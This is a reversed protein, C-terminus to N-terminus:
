AVLTHPRLSSSHLLAVVVDRVKKFKRAKFVEKFAEDYEEQTLVGKGAGVGGGGTTGVGYGLPTYGVAHTHTHTYIYIYM